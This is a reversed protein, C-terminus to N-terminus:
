HRCAGANHLLEGVEAGGAAVDAIRGPRGVAGADDELARLSAAVDPRRAKGSRPALVVYGVRNNVYVAGFMVLPLLGHETRDGRRHLVAEDWSFRQGGVDISAPGLRDVRHRGAPSVVDVSEGLSTAMGDRFMVPHSAGTDIGWEVRSASGTVVQPGSARRLLVRAGALDNVVSAPPDVWIAKSPPVILYNLQRLLDQGVVGDLQGFPALGDQDLVIVSRLTHTRPGLRLSPVHVLRASGMRGLSRTAIRGADALELHSAVDASVASLTSGTDLLFRYPGATGIHLRVFARGWRDLELPIRAGAAPAPPTAYAVVFLCVAMALM